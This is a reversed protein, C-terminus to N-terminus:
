ASLLAATSNTKSQEACYSNETGRVALLFITFIHRKVPSGGKCQEQHNSYSNHLKVNVKSYFKKRLLICINEHNCCWLINPSFQSFM